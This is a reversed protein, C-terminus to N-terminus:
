FFPMSVGFSKFLLTEFCQVCQSIWIWIWLIPTLSVIDM